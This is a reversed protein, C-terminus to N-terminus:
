FAMVFSSRIVRRGGRYAVYTLDFSSLIGYALELGVMYGYLQQVADALPEPGSPGGVRDGMDCLCPIASSTNARFVAPQKMEVVLVHRDDM